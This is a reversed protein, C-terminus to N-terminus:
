LPMSIFSITRGGDDSYFMIRVVRGGITADIIYEANPREYRIAFIGLAVGVLTMARQLAEEGARELINRDDVDNMIYFDPNPGFALVGQTHIGTSIKYLNRFNVRHYELISRAEDRGIRLLDVFRNLINRSFVQITFNDIFIPNESSSQPFVPLIMDDYNPPVVGWPVRTLPDFDLGRQLFDRLANIDYAQTVQGSRNRTGKYYAAGSIQKGNANFVPPSLADFCLACTDGEEYVPELIVRNSPENLDIEEDHIAQTERNRFLLRGTSPPRHIRIMTGETQSKSHATYIALRFVFVSSVNIKQMAKFFISIMHLEGMATPM